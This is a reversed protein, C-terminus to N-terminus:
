PRAAAQPALAGLVQQHLAGNSTVLSGAYISREGGLATALGGAEEVIV